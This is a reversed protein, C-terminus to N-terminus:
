FFFDRKDCRGNGSKAVSVCFVSCFILLEVDVGPVEISGTDNRKEESGFRIVELFAAKISKPFKM